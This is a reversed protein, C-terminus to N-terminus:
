NDAVFDFTHCSHSFNSDLNDEGICYVLTKYSSAQQPGILYSLIRGISQHICAGYRRDQRNVDHLLQAQGRYSLLSGLVSIAKFFCYVQGFRYNNRDVTAM